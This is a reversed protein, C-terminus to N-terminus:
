YRSFATLTKRRFRSYHRKEDSTIDHCALQNKAFIIKEGGSLRHRHRIAIRLVDEGLVGVLEALQHQHPAAVAQM